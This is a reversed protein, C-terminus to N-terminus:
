FVYTYTFPKFLIKQEEPTYHKKFENAKDYMAKLFRRYSPHSNYICARKKDDIQM